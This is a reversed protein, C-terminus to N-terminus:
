PEEPHKNVYLNLWIFEIPINIDSTSSIGFADVMNEISLEVLETPEYLLYSIAIKKDRGGRGAEQVYSEISSPHTINVTFRVNPKDIGMGFAKTAVMINQENDIFPKMMVPDAGGLYTGVKYTSDLATVFTGIGTKTLRGNKEKDLVGFAGERYPCFIIGANRCQGEKNALYFRKADYDEIHVPGERKDNIEKVENPVNGLLGILYLRKADAVCDRLGWKSANAVNANATKLQSFDAKVELVRYTLEERESIEPRVIADSDM